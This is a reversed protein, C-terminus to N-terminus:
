RPLMTQIIRSVAELGRERSLSCGFDLWHIANYYRVENSSMYEDLIQLLKRKPFAQISKLAAAKRVQDHESLYLQMITDESLERFRVEPLSIIVSSLLKSEMSISLLEDIRGVSISILAAAVQRIPSNSSPSMSMMRSFFSTEKALEILLPVDDFTGFKKLYDIVASCSDAKGERLIKRVRNLDTVEKKKCIIELARSVLKKKVHEIVRDNPNSYVSRSGLMALSSDIEKQVDASFETDLDERLKGSRQRFQRQILAFTASRNYITETEAIEELAAVDMDSFELEQFKEFAADGEWDIASSSGLLALVGLGQPPKPKVLTAKAEAISTVRGHKKLAVLAEYRVAAVDDRLLRDADEIAIDGAESLLKVTLARVDASPHNLGPALTSLDLREDGCFIRELLAKDVNKPKLEFLQEIAMQASTRACIQLIASEAM